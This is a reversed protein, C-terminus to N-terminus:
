DLPVLTQVAGIPQLMAMLDVNNWAEVM